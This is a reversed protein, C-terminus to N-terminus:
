SGGYNMYSPVPTCVKTKLAAANTSVLSMRDVITGGAVSLSGEPSAAATDFSQTEQQAIAVDEATPSMKQLTQVDDLYATGTTTVGSNLNAQIKQVMARAAAITTSASDAQAIVPAIVEKIATRAAEIQATSAKMFKTLDQAPDDSLITPAIKQQEICFNALGAVTTSASNAASRLTAWAPEYQSIQNLMDSGSSPLAATTKYVDSNTVGLSGSSTQLQTLGSSSNSGSSEGFGLLGNSGSGGLIESAFNVTSMVTGINKLIANIEPGVNGMRVLRDQNVGLVKNLTGAIVSGPTKITGSTGDKNICPDGPNVGSGGVGPTYSSGVSGCWSMVGNGWGIEAIRAGTAGGIGPGVIDVLKEQAAPYFTYPNNQTQTTLAFWARIGGSSWNGTLYDPAYSPTSQALTNMNEAWFGALSTKSLYDKRLSSTISGAFPSNSNREFQDFFALSKVDGVTQLSKQVDVVFQPIGTGNAKGIVFAIVGATLKKLLEGSLIFALPELVWKNIQLAVTAATNTIDLAASLTSKIATISTELSTKWNAILSKGTEVVPYAAHARHPAIMFASPVVLAVVLIPAIILSLARSKM